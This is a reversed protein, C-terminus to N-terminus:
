HLAGTLISYRLTGHEKAEARSPTLTARRYTHQVAADSTRWRPPMLWYIRAFRSELIWVKKGNILGGKNIPLICRFFQIGGMCPTWIQPSYNVVMPASLPPPPPRTGANSFDAPSTGGSIIVNWCSREQYTYKKSYDLMKVIFHGFDSSFIVIPALHTQTGM